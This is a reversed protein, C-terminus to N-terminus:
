PLTLAVVLVAAGFAAFALVDSARGRSSLPAAYRSPLVLRAAAAVLLACGVLGAGHGAHRPGQWAVFLGTVAIALALLYPLWSLVRAGAGLRDPDPTASDSRAGDSRASASGVGASGVSASGVSASGTRDSRASASGVSASGVSASGTRDSRASASGARDSGANAPRKAM